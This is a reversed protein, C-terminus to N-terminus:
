KYSLNGTREKQKWHLQKRPALKRKMKWVLFTGLVATIPASYRKPTSQFVEVQKTMKTRWVRTWQRHAKRTSPITLKLFPDESLFSFFSFLLLLFPDEPRSFRSPREIVANKAIQRRLNMTRLQQRSLLPNSAEWRVAQRVARTILCHGWLTSCQNISIRHWHHLYTSRWALELQTKTRTSDERISKNGQFMSVLSKSFHIEYSSHSLQGVCISNSNVTWPFCVIWHLCGDDWDMPKPIRGSFVERPLHDRGQGCCFKGVAIVWCKFISIILVWLRLFYETPFCEFSERKRQGIARAAPIRNTHSTNRGSFAKRSTRKTVLQKERQSCATVGVQTLLRRDNLRDTSRWMGYTSASRRPGSYQGPFTKEHEQWSWVPLDSWAPPTLTTQHLTNLRTHYQLNFYLIIDGQHTRFLINAKANDKWSNIQGSRIGLNSARFQGFQVASTRTKFYITTARDWSRSQWPLHPSERFHDGSRSAWSVHPFSM